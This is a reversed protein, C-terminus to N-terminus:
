PAASPCTKPCVDFAARNWLDIQSLWMQLEGHVRKLALAPPSTVYAANHGAPLVKAPPKRHHQCFPAAERSIAHCLPLAALHGSYLQNFCRRGRWASGEGGDEGGGEERGGGEGGGGEGGDDGGGDGGGEDGGKGGGDGGRGRGDGGGGEGGGGERAVVTAAMTRVVARVVATEAVAMAAVRAAAM